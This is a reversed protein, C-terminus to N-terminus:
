NISLTVDRFVIKQPKLLGLKEAMRLVDAPSLFVEDDDTIAQVKVDGEGTVSWIGGHDLDTM